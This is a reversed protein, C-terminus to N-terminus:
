KQKKPFEQLQLVIYSKKPQALHFYGDYPQGSKDRFPLVITKNKTKRKRKNEKIGGSSFPRTLATIAKNIVSFIHVLFVFSPFCFFLPSSLFGFGRFFCLVYFGSTSPSKM